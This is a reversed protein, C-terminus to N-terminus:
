VDGSDLSIVLHDPTVGVNLAAVSSVVAISEGLAERPYTGLVGIARMGAAGAAALGAPADEVIICNSPSVGLAEAARLYGEPDPKGRTVDEASVLVTPQPLDGLRLRFEAVQRIGSTVIAWRTRPLARLMQAVGPIPYVGRSEGAESEALAAVEESAVLHPAVVAVTDITRRGHAAHVVDDANLGHRNAWDRWTREVCERSDMLVGDLDFLIAHTTIEPM